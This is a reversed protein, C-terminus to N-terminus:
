REDYHFETSLSDNYLVTFIWLTNEFPHSSIQRHTRIWEWDEEERKWGTASTEM